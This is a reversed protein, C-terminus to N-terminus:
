EEDVGLMKIYLIAFVFILIFIVVGIASAMGMARNGILQYYNYSALSYRRQALLVQFLDFVRLADLTRFVLAVALAPKILPLTISFFQRLPSAGDVKAAEYLHGPIIQLGALLLLAMFPTTKWVDVAILVPIQLRELSLFATHGDGLGLNYFLTNFLGIRSPELMWEWMRASVVTIVAWPVLMVARMPGKGKFNSNVVMAIGLGLITEILVSFFSFVLTDKLAHLFDPDRAGVVYRNGFLSFQFLARYRSPQRPLIRLPHEYEVRGTDPDRQIDGTDEDILPPLEMVKISFLRQYNALGVFEQPEPSAFTKDTFSTVFVSGLPYIAIIFLILFAPLLLLYALKEEKKALASIQQKPRRGMRKKPVKAQEM